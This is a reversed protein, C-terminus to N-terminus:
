NTSAFSEMMEDTFTGIVTVSFKCFDMNLNKYSNGFNTSVKRMRRSSERQVVVSYTDEKNIPISTVKVIFSIHTNRDSMTPMVLVRRGALPGRYHNEILPGTGTVKRWNYDLHTWATYSAQDDHLRVDYRVSDTDIDYGPRIEIGGLPTGSTCIGVLRFDHSNYIEEQSYKKTSGESTVWEGNEWKSLYYPIYTAGVDNNSPDPVITSRNDVYLPLIGNAKDKLPMNSYNFPVATIAFGEDEDAYEVEETPIEETPTVEELGAPLPTKELEAVRETLDAVERVAVQTQLVAEESSAVGPLARNRVWDDEAGSVQSIAVIGVILGALGVISALVAIQRDRSM